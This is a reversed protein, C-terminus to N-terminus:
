RCLHTYSVPAFTDNIGDVDYRNLRQRLDTRGQTVIVDAVQRKYVDLHTYSVSVYGDGEETTVLAWGPISEDTVVLDDEIPVM